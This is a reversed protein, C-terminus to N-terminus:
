PQQKALLLLRRDDKLHSAVFISPMCMNANARLASNHRLDYSLIMVTINGCHCDHLM